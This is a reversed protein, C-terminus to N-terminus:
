EDNGLTYFVEGSVTAAEQHQMGAEIRWTHQCGKQRSKKRGGEGEIDKNRGDWGKKDKRRRRRERKKGRDSETTDVELRLHHCALFYRVMTSNVEITEPQKSACM